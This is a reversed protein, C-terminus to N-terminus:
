KKKYKTGEKGCMDDYNRAISCYEYKTEMKNGTVYYDISEKETTPFLMCKGFKKDFIFNHKFFKCNACLKPTIETLTFVPMFMSCIFLFIYKM